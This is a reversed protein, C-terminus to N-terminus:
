KLDVFVPVDNEFKDISAGAYVKVGIEELKARGGQYVKEIATAFGLINSGAQKCLDVLGIGANGEALFDDVILVNEDKNLYDKCVTVNCVTGRTFSKVKTMFVNNLDVTASASKKAFLIPCNGYELAVAFAIAIGSTEITLVKDVEVDGFFKKVDKAILTIIRPDIQHNLFNDVKVIEHGLMKGEKLIKQELEKM